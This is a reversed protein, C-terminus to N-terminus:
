PNLTPGPDGFPFLTSRIGLYVSRGPGPEFFRGGFANVAVSATYQRNALNTAGAFLTWRVGALTVSELGGRLDLLAYPSAADLNGDDAPVRGQYLARLELFPIGGAGPDERRWTCVMDLRHPAVGPIRNGDLVQEEVAFDRFRADTWTYAGRFRVGGPLAAFAALEAGRYRSKGANRYFVRGPADPVEFPVLEDTIRTQFLTGEVQIPGAGGGLVGVELSRGRQPGLRPNFGGSGDPRNALESTTPTQFFTSASARVSLGHALDIRLGASPSWADMIRSGSDDPEGPGVLRDQARFRVRDYRLGALLGVQRGVGLYGLAFGGAALVAEAQDLTVAGPRGRENELNRRRDWQGDMETGLTWDFSLEGAGPVPPIWRGRLLGRLGGARRSLDVIAPPIPNWIERLIGHAELEAELGARSGTWALGGATQSADEGAEQRINFPYAQTRDEEMLGRSLSGPNESDQSLINLTARLRGGAVPRTVQLNGNWRRVQGYTGRGEVPDGRFGDFALGGGSFLYGTAGMTGESLLTLRRLGYSGGLLQVETRNLSAPPPRTRFRIVGAAGNGYLSAAPGRLVEVSGLSFLDLHDLTSQGDPLTAPIGDVLIRIGRVGFQTRAGMGRLVIREGVAFNYRNQIQLGPLAQLSEELFTGSRGQRLADAGLVSLSLPSEGLVLPTRLM